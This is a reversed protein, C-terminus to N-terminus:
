EAIWQPHSTRRGQREGDAAQSRPRTSVCSRHSSAIDARQYASPRTTAAIGTSRGRTAMSHADPDTLSVRRDPAARRQQGIQKLRQMQAKVAAVKDKFRSVRGQTVAAPAVGEFGLGTLDLVDIFADIVRVSNDEAVYDDLREPLLTIQNRDECEVLRKM